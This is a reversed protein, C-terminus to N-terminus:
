AAQEAGIGIGLTAVQDFGIWAKGIISVPQTRVVHELLEGHVRARHLLAQAVAVVLLLQYAVLHGLEGPAAEQVAVGAVFGLVASEDVLPHREGLCVLENGPHGKSFGLDGLQGAVDDPQDLLVDGQGVAGMGTGQHGLDVHPDLGAVDVAVAGQQGAAVNIEVDAAFERVAAGDGPAVHDGQGGVGDIIQAPADGAVVNRQRGLRVEVVQAAQELPPSLRVREAPRSM